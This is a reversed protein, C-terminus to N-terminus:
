KEQIHNIYQVLLQIRQRIATQGVPSGGGPAEVGGFREGYVPMDAPGHGAIPERGDIIRAVRLAPFTGNNKKALQTLDTLKTTLLPAMPGNGKGDVGHCSACYRTFSGKGPPAGLKQQALAPWPLLAVVTAVALALLCSTSRLFNAKM